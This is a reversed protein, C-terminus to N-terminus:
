RWFGLLIKPPRIEGPGRMYAKGLGVETKGLISDQKGLFASVMLGWSTLWGMGDFMANPAEFLLSVDSSTVDVM